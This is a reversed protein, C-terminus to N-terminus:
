RMLNPFAVTRGMPQGQARARADNPTAVRQLVDKEAVIASVIFLLWVINVPRMLAAEAVEFAMDGVIFMLWFAAEPTRATLQLLRYIARVLV